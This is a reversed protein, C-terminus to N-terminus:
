VPPTCGFSTAAGALFAEKISLGSGYMGLCALAAAGLFMILNALKFLNMKLGGGFVGDRKVLFGVVFLPPFTYSFQMICIAAILGSITQVQPIAAGVVFALAWYVIVMGSWIFRGKTSLLPPGQFWGEIINYYAVKIGINGYLGAAIIGTILAFVNGVSQWSYKSVGQFALPLTYQGQFSYVYAGYMMYASFILLQACCMGKWFDWPRRM